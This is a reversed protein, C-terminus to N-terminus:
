VPLIVPKGEPFRGITEADVKLSQMVMARPTRTVTAAATMLGGAATAVLM